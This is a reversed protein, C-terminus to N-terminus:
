KLEIAGLSKSLMEPTWASGEPPADLGDSQQMAYEFVKTGHVGFIRGNVDSSLESGLWTVVPAIHKPGMDEVGMAALAPVDETMRTLAVPAIANVRCDLKAFEMSCTRTLGFIGAKAASYNAQGFNGILGSMSTTNVIAAATSTGGLSQQRLARAFARSMLWTGKLHVAIVADWEQETMNVCSKDRLIGANNVLVDIRKFRGLATWIVSQAGDLDAVSDYSAVAKGGASIIEEVVDDAARGKGTGDRAGGLDNVVVMAGEEAFALAEARGIGNGAGTVIVVKGDFLGM